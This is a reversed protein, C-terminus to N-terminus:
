KSQVLSYISQKTCKSDVTKVIIAAPLCDFGLAPIPLVCSQKVGDINNLYEEIENPSVPFKFCKFVEKIRDVIFLDNYEDFRALDGTLFFGESDFINNASQDGGLYGLIPCAFKLCLEGIEGIGLREGREDVIKAEIGSILQGVCDNLTHSLNIAIAGCTETMGYSHCFKGGTLYKSMNQIVDYFVKTGGACFLKLSSLDASSTKLHNRLQGVFAGSCISVTVKFKEVIECYRKSSFPDHNVIRTSGNLIPGLLSRIGSVGNLVTYGLVVDTPKFICKLNTM